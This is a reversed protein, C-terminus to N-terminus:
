KQMANHFVQVVLIKSQLLDILMVSYKRAYTGFANIKDSWGSQFVNGYFCTKLFLKKQFDSCAYTTLKIVVYLM